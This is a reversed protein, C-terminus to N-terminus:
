MEKIKSIIIDKIVEHDITVIGTIFDGMQEAQEETYKLGIEDMRSKVMATFFKLKSELM